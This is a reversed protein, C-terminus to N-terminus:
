SRQPLPLQLEPHALALVCSDAVYDRGLVIHRPLGSGGAADAAALNYGVDAAVAEAVAEGSLWQSRM